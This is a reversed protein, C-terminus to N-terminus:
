TASTSSTTTTMMSPIQLVTPPREDAALITDPVSDPFPEQITKSCNQSQLSVNESPSESSCNSSRKIIKALRQIEKKYAKEPLEIWRRLEELSHMKKAATLDAEDFQDEAFSYEDEVDTVYHDQVHEGLNDYPLDETKSNDEKM